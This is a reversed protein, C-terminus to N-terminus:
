RFQYTWIWNQETFLSGSMVNESQEQEGSLTQLCSGPQKRGLFLLNDTLTWSDASRGQLHLWQLSLALACHLQAGGQSPTPPLQRYVPRLQLGSAPLGGRGDGARAQHEGQINDRCLLYLTQDWTEMYLWGLEVSIKFNTTPHQFNFRDHVYVDVPTSLTVLLSSVTLRELCEPLELSQCRGYYFHDQPRFFSRGCYKGDASLSM